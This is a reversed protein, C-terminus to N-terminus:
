WCYLLIVCMFWLKIWLVLCILKERVPVKMHKLQKKCLNFSETGRLSTRTVTIGSIDLHGEVGYNRWQVIVKNSLCLLTYLKCMQIEEQRNRLATERICHKAHSVLNQSQTHTHTHTNTYTHVCYDLELTFWVPGLGTQLPPRLGTAFSSWYLENTTHAQDLRSGSWSCFLQLM